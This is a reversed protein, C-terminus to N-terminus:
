INSVLFVQDDYTTSEADAAGELIKSIKETAQLNGPYRALLITIRYYIHPLLMIVGLVRCMGFTCPPEMKLKLLPACM